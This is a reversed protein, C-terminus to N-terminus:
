KKTEKRHLNKEFLILNLASGDSQIIGSQPHRSKGKIGRKTARATQKTNAVDINVHRRTARMRKRNRLKQILGHEM